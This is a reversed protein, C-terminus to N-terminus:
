LLPVDFGAPIIDLPSLPVAADLSPIIFNILPGFASGLLCPKRGLWGSSFRRYGGLSAPM